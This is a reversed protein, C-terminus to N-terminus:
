GFELVGKIYEPPRAAAMELAEQAREATHRHTILEQMQFTGRELLWVARQMIGVNRDTSIMPAAHFMRIGQMHWQGFDVTRPAHHWAFVSIRGGVRAFDGAAQLTKAAGAAEVVLDFPEGKLAEMRADGDPTGVQIVETAGYARALDLNHPKLDSVVLEKLPMHALGQVNLLGMYGAGLVLVRDGPIMDYTPLASVICSAPEAFLVPPDEPPRSYKAIVRSGKVRVNYNALSAWQWCSVWDGEGYDTVDRGVKTVFGIGEHGVLRPERVPEVGRFMSVDGMCIGNAVCRVQIEDRDPDTVAMERVEARGAEVIWVGYGKVGM